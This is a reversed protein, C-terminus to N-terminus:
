DADERGLLKKLLAGAKTDESADSGGGLRQAVELARRASAQMDAAMYVKALTRHAQADRPALEVARKATEMAVRLDEGARLQALAL